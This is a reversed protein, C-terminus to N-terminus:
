RVCPGRWASFCHSIRRSNRSRTAQSRRRLRLGSTRRLRQAGVFGPPGDLLWGSFIWTLCRCCRGGRDRRRPAVGDLRPVAHYVSQRQSASLAPSRRWAMFWHCRRPHLRWVDVNVVQSWLAPNARLDTFYIWHLVAGAWNWRRERATTDLVIEGTRSSVYLEVGEDGAVSIRHLPRHGEFTGAVTWQDRQLTTASSAPAGTARAVIARAQEVDVSEILRGTAASVTLFPWGAATVRYVPEGAMMELRVDRPFEGLARGHLVREPAIRIQAADLPELRSFREAQTYEPFGVYMMVLGTVFWMAFLLCTAVGLWRHVVILWRWVTASLSFTRM